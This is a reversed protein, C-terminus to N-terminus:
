NISGDRPICGGDGDSREGPPCVPDRRQPPRQTQNSGLDHCVLSGDQNSIDGLCSAFDDLSTWMWDGHIRRCFASLEGGNNFINQCSRAYSGGPVSLGNDCRLHGDLNYIGGQCIQLARLYTNTWVGLRTACNAFLTSSSVSLDRCTQAYSSNPPNNKPCQLIGDQNSIDGTCTRVGALQTRNWRGNITGCTAALFDGDIAMDRCSQRYSGEPLPRSGCSLRGDSNILGGSCARWNRLATRWWRGDRARCTAFVRDRDASVDNCTQQYSGTPPTVLNGPPAGYFQRVGAIDTASLMRETVWTPNCYNMVSSLDAIGVLEDGNSGQRPAECAADPRNQEHAFGLAHGFEHVALVRICSLRTPDDVSCDPSWKLFDFNLVMGPSKGDLVRGLGETHPNKKTDEIQIQINAGGKDCRKWGTFRVASEAEWTNAIANRVEVKEADRGDFLWCVSVPSQWVTQTAVNLPQAITGIEEAHVAASFPLGLGVLLNLAKVWVNISTLRLM